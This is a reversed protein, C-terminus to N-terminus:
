AGYPIILFVLRNYSDFFFGYNRWITGTNTEMSISMPLIERDLTELTTISIENFQNITNSQYREFDDYSNFGLVPGNELEREFEERPLNELIDNLITRKREPLSM